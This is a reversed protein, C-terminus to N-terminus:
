KELGVREVEWELTIGTKEKVRCVIQNGLTELDKAKAHGNNVMFNCHKESLKADGVTLTDCGANKILEWARHGQPNKFLSGATKQGVVQHTKRYLAQEDLIKIIKEKSSKEGKLTLALIIWDKNFTSNRYSFHFEDPTIERTQGTANMIRAKLLVDSLSKSFCGANTKVLGGITGPISALFELGGIEYNPLIKKLNTNPLGAFCTLEENQCSFQKFYPTNLKIVVGKIGGDRILLNSGGGLIFYPLDAPKNKFFLSLDKEDKPFFMIEAKGGVGLWTYNKLDQGLLIKGQLNKLFTLENKKM